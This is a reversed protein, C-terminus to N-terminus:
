LAEMILTVAKGSDVDEPTVFLVRWEQIAAANLKEYEKCLAAPRVHAGGIWNGGQIELALKQEPWAFDFRWARDPDFRFECQHGISLRALQASLRGNPSLVSVAEESSIRESLKVRVEVKGREYHVLQDETWRLGTM